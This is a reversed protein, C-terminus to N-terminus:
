VIGVRETTTLSNMVYIHKQLSLNASQIRTNNVPRQNLATLM